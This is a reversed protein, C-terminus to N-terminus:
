MIRVVKNIFTTKWENLENRMFESYNVHNNNSMKAFVEKSYEYSSFYLAHAPGAGLVVAGVGRLPRYYFLSWIILKRDYWWHTYLYIVMILHNHFFSSGFDRWFESYPHFKEGSYKCSSRGNALLLGWNAYKRGTNTHRLPSSTRISNLSMCSTFDWSLDGDAISKFRSTHRSRNPM